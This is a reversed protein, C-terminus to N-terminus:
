NEYNIYLKVKMFYSKFLNNILKEKKTIYTFLSAEQERVWIKLYEFGTQGAIAVRIISRGSGYIRSVMTQTKHVHPSCASTM